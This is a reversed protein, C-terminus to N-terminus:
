GELKLGSNDNGMRVVLDEPASAVYQGMRLKM